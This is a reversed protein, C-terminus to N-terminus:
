NILHLRKFKSVVGKYADLFTDYVKRGGEITYFGLNSDIIMADPNREPINGDISVWYAMASKNYHKCSNSVINYITCKTFISLEINKQALEYERVIKLATLYEDKTYM